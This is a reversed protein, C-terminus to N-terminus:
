LFLIKLNASPFVATFEEFGSAATDKEELEIDPQRFKDENTLLSFNVVLACAIKSDVFSLADIDNLPTSEKGLKQM